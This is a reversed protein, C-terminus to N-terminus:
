TGSARHDYRVQWDAQAEVWAVAEASAAPTLGYPAMAAKSVLWGHRTRGIFGDLVPRGDSKGARWFEVYLGESDSPKILQPGYLEGRAIVRVIVAGRTGAFERM